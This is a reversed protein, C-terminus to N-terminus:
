HDSSLSMIEGCHCFMSGVKEINQRRHFNEKDEDKCIDAEALTPQHDGNQKIASSNKHEDIDNNQQSPCGSLM